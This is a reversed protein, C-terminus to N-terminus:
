IGPLLQEFKSTNRKISKKMATRWGQAGYFKADTMAVVRDDRKKQSYYKLMNIKNPDDDGMILDELIRWRCYTILYEAISNHNVEPIILEGEEDTALGTYQIYIYDEDFNTNIYDGVINIEYVSSPAYRKSLNHCKPSIKERNFGKTLVLPQFNDYYATVTARRLYYKEEICKFNKYRYSESANDWEVDNERREKYLIASQLFDEEEGEGCIGASSVKLALDLKWFNEPLRAKGNVVPITKENGAMVDAGFSILENKIWRNLSIHDILGAEEYQAFGGSIVEQILQKRNM